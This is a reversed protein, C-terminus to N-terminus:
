EMNQSYQLPNSYPFWSIGGGLLELFLVHGIDIWNIFIYILLYFDWTQVQVSHDAYAVAFQNNLLKLTVSMMRGRCKSKKLCSARVVDGDGCYMHPSCHAWWIRIWIWIWIETCHAGYTPLPGKIYAIVMKQLFNVCCCLKTWDLKILNFVAIRNCRM